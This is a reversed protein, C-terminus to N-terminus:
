YQMKILSMHLEMLCKPNQVLFEDQSQQQHLEGSIDTSGSTPFAPHSVLPDHHDNKIGAHHAQKLKAPIPLFAFNIERVATNTVVNASTSCLM